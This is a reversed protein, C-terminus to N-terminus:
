DSYKDIFKNYKIEDVIKQHEDTLRFGDVNDLLFLLYDDVNNFAIDDRYKKLIKFFDEQLNSSYAKFLHVLLAFYNANRVDNRIDLNIDLNERLSFLIARLVIWDSEYTYFKKSKIIKNKFGEEAKTTFLMRDPRLLVQNIDVDSSSFFDNISNVTTIDCVNRLLDKVKTEQEISPKILIVDLDRPSEPESILRYHKGSNVTDNIYTSLTNRAAGGKIWLDNTDFLDKYKNFFNIIVPHIKLKSTPVFKYENALKYLLRYRFNM